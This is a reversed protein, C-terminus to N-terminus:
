TDHRVGAVFRRGSSARSADGNAGGEPEVILHIRGGDFQHRWVEGFLGGGGNDLRDYRWEATTFIPVTIAAAKIARVVREEAREDSCVFLLLPETPFRERWEAAEFYRAYGSFKGRYDGADLTGRDYELLFPREENARCLTGSGDPRIWANRGDSVFLHVSDVENRWVRLRWGADRADRAIRAFVHNIGLQHAMSPRTASDDPLSPAKVARYGKRPVGEADALMRRTRETVCWLEIGDVELRRVAHYRRLLELRRVVVGVPLDLFLALEPASLRPHRALWDLCAKDAVSTVIALAATCERMPHDGPRNAAAAARDRLGIGKCRREPLPMSAPFALLPSTDASRSSLAQEFRLRAPAGPVSWIAARPGATLLEPATTLRVDPMGAREAHGWLEADWVRRAHADACIVFIVPPDASNSEAAWKRIRTRRYGDPVGARDWAVFLRSGGRVGRVVGYADVGYPWWREASGVPLSAADGLTMEGRERLEAALESLLWNVATVTAIRPIRTLVDADRVPARRAIEDAALGSCAALDALAEARLFAARRREDLETVRPAIWEVWGRRDLETRLHRAAIEDIGMLRALELDGLLPLRVIWALAEILRQEFLPTKM